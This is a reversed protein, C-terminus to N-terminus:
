TLLMDVKIIKQVVVLQVDQYVEINNEQHNLGTILNDLIILHLPTIWKKMGCLFFLFNVAIIIGDWQQNFIILLHKLELQKIKKNYNILL